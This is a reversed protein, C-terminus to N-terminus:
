RTRWTLRRVRRHHGESGQRWTTSAAPKPSCACTRVVRGDERQGQRVARGGRPLRVEGRAPLSEERDARRDVEHRAPQQHDRGSRGAGNEAIQPADIVIDKSDAAVVAGLSKLADALTKQGFADKNWAAFVDQPRLIGAAMAAAVASAAGARKLTKRKSTQMPVIKARRAAGHAALPGFRRRAKGRPRVEGISMGRDVAKLMDYITLL